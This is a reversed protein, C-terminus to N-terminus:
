YDKEVLLSDRGNMPEHHVFNPEHCSGCMASCEVNVGFVDQHFKIGFVDEVKDIENIAGCLQCVFRVGLFVDRPEDRRSIIKV